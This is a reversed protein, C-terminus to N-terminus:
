GRYRTPLPGRYGPDNFCHRTTRAAAVSVEPNNEPADRDGTRQWADHRDQLVVSHRCPCTIDEWPWAGRQRAMSDVIRVPGWGPNFSDSGTVARRRSETM